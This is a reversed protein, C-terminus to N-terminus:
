QVAPVWILCSEPQSIICLHGDVMRYLCRHYDDLVIKKMKLLKTMETTEGIPLDSVDRSEYSTHLLKVQKDILTAVASIHSAQDDSSEVRSKSIAARSKRIDFMLTRIKKLNKFDQQQEKNSKELDICEERLEDYSAKLRQIVNNLEVHEQQITKQELAINKSEMQLFRSAASDHANRTHLFAYVYNRLILRKEYRQKPSLKENQDDWEDPGDNIPVEIEESSPDDEDDESDSSDDDRDSFVIRKKEFEYLATKKMMKSYADILKNTNWVSMKVLTTVLGLELHIDFYAKFRSMINLIHRSQKANPMLNTDVPVIIVKIERILAEFIDHLCLKYLKQDLISGLTSLQGDLQGFIDVLVQELVQDTASDQTSEEMQESKQFVNYKNILNSPLNRYTGQNRVFSLLTRDITVFVYESLLKTMNQVHRSMMKQASSMNEHITRVADQLSTKRKIRHATETRLGLETLPASTAGKDEDEDDDELNQEDNELQEELQTAYEKTRKLAEHINNMCLAMSSVHSSMDFTQKSKTKLVTKIASEGINKVTDMAASLMSAHIEIQKDRYKKVQAYHESFYDFQKQAYNVVVSSIVSSFTVYILPIGDFQLAVPSTATTGTFTTTESAAMSQSSSPKDKLFLSHEKLKTTDVQIFSFMDVVSSTYHVDDTVTNWSDNAVARNVIKNLDVERNNIWEDIVPLFIRTLDYPKLRASYELFFHYLREIHHPIQLVQDPTGSSKQHSFQELEDGMLYYFFEVTHKMLNLSRPFCLEFQVAYRQLFEILVSSLTMIHHARLPGEDGYKKLIKDKFYNMANRCSNRVSELLKQRIISSLIQTRDLHSVVSALNDISTSSSIKKKEMPPARSTKRKKTLSALYDKVVEGNNSLIRFCHVLQIVKCAIVVIRLVKSDSTGLWHHDLVLQCSDIIRKQSAEFLELERSNVFVVMDGLSREIVGQLIHLLIKYVNIIDSALSSPAKNRNEFRTSLKELLVLMPYVQGFGNMMSVIKMVSLADESIAFVNKALEDETEDERINCLLDVISRILNVRSRSDVKTSGGLETQDIQLKKRATEFPAARSSKWKEWAKDGKFTSKHYFPKRKKHSTARLMLGENEKAIQQFENIIEIACVRRTKIGLTRIRRRMEQKTINVGHALVLALREMQDKEEEDFHVFLARLANEIANERQEHMLNMANKIMEHNFSRVAQIAQYPVYQTKDDETTDKGWQFPLKVANFVTSVTTTMQVPIAFMMSLFGSEQKKEGDQGILEQLSIPPLFADKPEEIASDIIEEAQQAFHESPDESKEKLQAMLAGDRIVPQEHEVIILFLRYILGMHTSAQELGQIVLFLAEYHDDLITSALRAFLEYGDAYTPHSQVLNSCQNYAEENKRKQGVQNQSIILSEIHDRLYLVNPPDLNSSELLYQQAKNLADVNMISVQGAQQKLQHISMEANENNNALALLRLVGISGSKGLDEIHDSTEFVKKLMERGKKYMQKAQQARDERDDVEDYLELLADNAENVVLGENIARRADEYQGLEMLAHARCIYSEPGAPDIFSAKEADQLASQYKAMSLLLRARMCYYLPNEPYIEIAESFYQYALDNNGKNAADIADHCKQQARIWMNELRVVQELKKAMKKNTSFKSLGDKFTNKARTLDIKRIECKGKLYLAESNNKDLKVAKKADKLAAAPRNIKLLCKARMVLTEVDNPRRQLSANLHQVANTYLERTHPDDNSLQIMTQPSKLVSTLKGQSAEQILIKAEQAGKRAEYDNVFLRLSAWANNLESNYPTYKNLAETVLKVAEEAKEMSMKMTLRTFLVYFHALKPEMSIAKRCDSESAQFQDLSYYCDARYYYSEAICLLDNDLALLPNESARKANNKEALEILQTYLSVAEVFASKQSLSKAREKLTYYQDMNQELENMRHHLLELVAYQQVKRSDQSTLQAYHQAGLKDLFKMAEEFQFMEARSKVHLIMTEFLFDDVQDQSPGTTGLVLHTEKEEDFLRIADNTIRLTMSYQGVLFLIKAYLLHMDSRYPYMEIATKMMDSIEKLTDSSKLKYFSVLNDINDTETIGHDLKVQKFMYMACEYTVMASEQDKSTKEMSDLEDRLRNDNTRLIGRELIRAASVFQRLQKLVHVHALYGQPQKPALKISLESEKYAETFKSLDCLLVARAARYVSNGRDIEIAKELLSLAEEKQDPQNTLQLGRQGYKTFALERANRLREAGKIAQQIKDVSPLLERTNDTQKMIQSITDFALQLYGLAADFERLAILSSGALLYARWLQKHEEASYVRIVEDARKRARQYQGKLMYAETLAIM